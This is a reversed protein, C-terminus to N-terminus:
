DGVGEKQSNSIKKIKGLVWERSRAKTDKLIRNYATSNAPFEDAAIDKCVQTKNPHKQKAHYANIYKQDMLAQWRVKNKMRKTVYKGKSAKYNKWTEYLPKVWKKDYKSNKAWQIFDDRLVTYQISGDEMETEAVATLHGEKIQKIAWQYIRVLDSNGTLDIKGAHTKPDMGLLLKVAISLEWAYESSVWHLLFDKNNTM